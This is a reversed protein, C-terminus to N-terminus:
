RAGRMIAVAESTMRAAIAAVDHLSVTRDGHLWECYMSGLGASLFEICPKAVPRLRLRGAEVEAGVYGEVAQRLADQCAADSFIARDYGKHQDLFATLDGLLAEYDLGDAGAYNDRLNELARSVARSAFADVFDQLTEYHLYFTRRTVNARETLEAVTIRELDKEGLLGAFADRLAEETRAYRRDKDRTQGM